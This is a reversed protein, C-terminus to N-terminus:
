LSGLLVALHQLLILKLALSWHLKEKKQSGPLVLHSDNQPM